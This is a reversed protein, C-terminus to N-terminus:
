RVGGTLALLITVVIATLMIILGIQQLIASLAVSRGHRTHRTRGAALEQPNEREVGLVRALWWSRACFEYEGIESARIWRTAM